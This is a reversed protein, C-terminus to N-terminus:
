KNQEESLQEEIQAESNKPQYSKRQTPDQIKPETKMNVGYSSHESPDVLSATQDLQPASLSNDVDVKSKQLQVKKSVKLMHENVRKLREEQTQKKKAFSNPSLASLTGIFLILILRNSFNFNMRIM